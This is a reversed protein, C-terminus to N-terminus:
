CPMSFHMVGHGGYARGLSSWFTKECNSSYSSTM